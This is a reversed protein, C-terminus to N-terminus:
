NDKDSFDTVCDYSSAALEDISLHYKSKDLIVLRLFSILLEINGKFNARFELISVELIFGLGLIL